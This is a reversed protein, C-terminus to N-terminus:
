RDLNSSLLGNLLPLLLTCAELTFVESREVLCSLVDVLVQNFLLFIFAVVDTISRIKNFNHLYSHFTKVSIGVSHDAMKAMAEVAGKLDNKTWFRRIIQLFKFSQLDGNHFVLRKSKWYVNEPCIM